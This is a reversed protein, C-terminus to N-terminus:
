KLSKSPLVHLFCYLPVKYNSQLRTSKQLHQLRNRLHQIIEAKLPRFNNKLVCILIIKEKLREQAQHKENKGLMIIFYNIFSRLKFWGQLLM